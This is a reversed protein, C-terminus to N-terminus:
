PEEPQKVLYGLRMEDKSGFFANASASLLTLGSLAVTSLLTKLKM